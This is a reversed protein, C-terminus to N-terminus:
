VKRQSIHNIPILKPLPTSSSMWILRVNEGEQIYCGLGSANIRTSRDFPLSAAGAKRMTTSNACREDFFLIIQQKSSFAVGTIRPDLLPSAPLQWTTIAAGFIATAVLAVALKARRKM